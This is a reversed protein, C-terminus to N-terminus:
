EEPELVLAASNLCFREGTPAPGDPFLHGLHADCRKCAVEVRHMGHSQDARTEIADPDLPQFFSPWGTGSDFKAESSFLPSQCCVCRYTGPEKSDHYIGTFALETGQERTIAYQQESLQSRWEEENKVIKETM